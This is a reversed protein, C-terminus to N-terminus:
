EVNSSDDIESMEATVIKTVSAKKGMFDVVNFTLSDVVNTDVILYGKGESQLFVQDKLLLLGEMANRVSSVSTHGIVKGIFYNKYDSM